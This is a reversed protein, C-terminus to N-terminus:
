RNQGLRQECTGQIENEWSFSHRYLRGSGVCPHKKEKQFKSSNM